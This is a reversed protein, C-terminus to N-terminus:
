SINAKNVRHKDYFFNCYYITNFLLVASIKFKSQSKVVVKESLSVISSDDKDKEVFATNEEM